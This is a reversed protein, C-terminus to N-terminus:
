FRFVSVFAAGFFNDDGGGSSLANAYAPVDAMEAELGFTLQPAAEYYIGGLVSSLNGLDDYDTYAAGIEAHIMETLNFNIIGSVTWYDGMYSHEGVGAAVSLNAITGLGFGIGAGVQYGDGHTAATDSNEWVIGAVEGSIADGTFKIEGAVAFDGGDGFSNGRFTESDGNSSDELAIAASLPGSAWSLRAQYTDGPNLAYSPTGSSRRNASFQDTAWYCNCSGDVGYGVDGLSASYGAGFTLEPTMAWWGWYEHAFFVEDSNVGSSSFGVSRLQIRVGVEGVATDTKGVVRLHARPAFYTRKDDDDYTYTYDTYAIAVRVYGSWEITTSPPADAAPMIGIINARGNFGKDNEGPNGPVIHADGKSYTLLSYGTPMAPSTELQAVRANLAEIEAKLTSLDDAQAGVAMVALAAGGLLGLKMMKM